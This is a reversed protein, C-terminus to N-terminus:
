TEAPPSAAFTPRPPYPIPEALLAPLLREAAAVFQVFDLRGGISTGAMTSADAKVEPTEIVWRSRNNGYGQFYEVVHERMNRLDRIDTASFEDLMKFDVGQCLGLDSVWKRHELVKYAAIAFYHHESRMQGVLLRANRHGPDAQMKATAEFIRRGQEIVAYTRQVLSEFAMYREHAESLIPLKEKAKKV